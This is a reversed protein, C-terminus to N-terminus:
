TTVVVRPFTAVIQFVGPSALSAAPTGGLLDVLRQVLALGLGCHLGTDSRATDARWFRDFVRAADEDTLRCAPNALTLVATDREAHLSVDIWTDPDAHSVANDLLNALIQQLRDRDTRVQLTPPLHWRIHLGRAAARAALPAWEHELLPPLDFVAITLPTEHAELRALALLTEVMSHARKAIELTQELAHRYEEPPRSRALTVECTARVGALPTRLEHAVDASFARERSFAAHLKELLVNLRQAVPLVEAPAVDLELRADLDSEDLEGIRRALTHLPRLGRRVFWTLVLAQTIVATFGVAVLLTTVRQLAHDLDATARAVALTVELQSSSAAPGSEYRPHFVLTAQRGSRGDPLTLTRFAVHHGIRPAALLHGDQLSPSRWLTPGDASCLEAYEPSDGLDFEPMVRIDFEFDVRGADEEVLAALARLKGALAADFESHLVVRVVLYVALGAVLMVLVSAVLVGGLLRGQLSRSM